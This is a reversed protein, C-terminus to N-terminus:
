TKKKFQFKINNTISSKEKRLHKKGVGNKACQRELARTILDKIFVILWLHKISQLGTTKIHGQWHKFNGYCKRYQLINSIRRLIQGNRVETSQSPSAPNEM